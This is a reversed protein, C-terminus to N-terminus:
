TTEVQRVSKARTPALPPKAHRPDDRRNITRVIALVIEALFASVVLVLMYEPLVMGLSVLAAAPPILLFESLKRRGNSSDRKMVRITGGGGPLIPTCFVGHALRSRREARLAGDRTGDPL